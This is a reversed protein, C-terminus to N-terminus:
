FKELVKLKNIFVFCFLIKFTEYGSENRPLTTDIYDLINVLFPSSRM